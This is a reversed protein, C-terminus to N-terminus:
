EVFDGVRKIYNFKISLESLSPFFNFVIMANGPCYPPDNQKRDEIMFNKGKKSLGVAGISQVLLDIQSNGRLSLELRRIKYSTEREFQVDVFRKVRFQSALDLIKRKDSQFESFKKEKEGVFYLSGDTFSTAFNKSFTPGYGFYEGVITELFKLLAPKSQVPRKFEILTFGLHTTKFRKKQPLHLNQTFSEWLDQTFNMRINGVTKHLNYSSVISDAIVKSSVVLSDNDHTALEEDHSYFVYLPWGSKRSHYMSLSIIKATNLQSRPIKYGIRSQSFSVKHCIVDLAILTFFNDEISLLQGVKEGNDYYYFTDM